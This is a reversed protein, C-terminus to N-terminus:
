NETEEAEYDLILEEDMEIAEILRLSKKYLSPADL